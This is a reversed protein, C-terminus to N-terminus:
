FRQESRSDKKFAEAVLIYSRDVPVVNFFKDFSQLIQFVVVLRHKQVDVRDLSFSIPKGFFIRSFEM